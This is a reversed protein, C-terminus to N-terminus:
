APSPFPGEWVPEKEVQVWSERLSVLLSKKRRKERQGGPSRSGSSAVVRILRGQGGKQVNSISVPFLCRQAGLASAVSRSEEVVALHGIQGDGIQERARQCGDRHICKKQSVGELREGNEIRSPPDRLEYKGGREVPKVGSPM